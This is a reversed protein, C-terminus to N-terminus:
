GLIADVVVGTERLDRFVAHPGCAALADVSYAGTAVAV